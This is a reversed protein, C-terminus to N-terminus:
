KEQNQKTKKQREALNSCVNLMLRHEKSTDMSSLHWVQNGHAYIIVLNPKMNGTTWKLEDLMEEMHTGLISKPNQLEVNELNTDLKGINIDM